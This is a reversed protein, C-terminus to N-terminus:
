IKEGRKRLLQIMKFITKELRRIRRDRKKESKSQKSPKSNGKIKLQKM